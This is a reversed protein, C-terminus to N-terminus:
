SYRNQVKVLCAAVGAFVVNPLWAAALGPLKGALGAEWAARSLLYYAALAGCFIGGLVWQRVARRTVVSLAFLVFALPACSLAWRSHYYVDLDRADSVLGAEVASDRHERMETFTLKNRAQRRSSDSAVTQRAARNAMPVFSMMTGVSVVSCGIALVLIATALRRTVIRRGLSVFVGLPFGVLVAFTLVQPVSYVLLSGLSAQTNSFARLVLPVYLLLAVAAIATVAYRITCGLLCQDDTTRDHM